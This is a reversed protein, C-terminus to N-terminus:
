YNPSLKKQMSLVIVIVRWLNMPCWSDLIVCGRFVYLFKCMPLSCPLTTPSLSTCKVWIIGVDVLSYFRVFPHLTPMVSRISRRRHRIRSCCHRTPTRWAPRRRRRATPRTCRGSGPAAARFRCPCTLPLERSYKIVHMTYRDLNPDRRVPFPKLFGLKM